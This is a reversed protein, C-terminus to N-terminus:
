LLMMAVAEQLEEPTFATFGMRTAAIESGGLDFYSGPRLKLGKLRCARIFGEFVNPRAHQGRGKIWLAMAGAISDFELVDGFAHRLADELADRREQAAKRARRLHRLIEGDLFLESLAWELMPDGQWDVRQRVKAMPDALHTPVTLFSVRVGPALLRSLSGAYFVQGQNGSALPWVSEQPSPLYDFEPDVELIPFRFQRSLELVRQRRPNSLCVGTPYQCQPSLVLLRLSVRELLAELEQIQMGERDVSVPHLTGASVQRLTEWVIPNGPNEVAVDGGKPGLMTQAVLSVAMSTSRLILIQGPDVAMARQSALHSALAERLRHHGKFDGASLLETGKLNLARHYARVLANAPALRADAVGDSLDMHVNTTSTISALDMPMEFSSDANVKPEATEKKFAVPLPDSIFFGSRPHSFVWGQAELERMAALVTNSHVTFRKALDRIGPLRSGAQIRGGQVAEVIRDAVQRYLPGTAGPDLGLNFEDTRM